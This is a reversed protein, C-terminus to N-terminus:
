KDEKNARESLATWVEHSTYGWLEALDNIAQSLMKSHEPGSWEGADFERDMHEGQTHDEIIGEALDVVDDLKPKDLQHEVQYGCKPCSYIHMLWDDTAITETHNMVEMCATGLVKIPVHCLLRIKEGTFM